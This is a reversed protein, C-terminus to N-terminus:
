RGTLSLLPVPNSHVLAKLLFLWVSSLEIREEPAKEVRSMDVGQIGKANVIAVEGDKLSIYNRTHRSFACVESAVFVRESGLGIVLPSGNRAAIIQDPHSKSLIALGWTGELRSLTKNVAAKLPLNQDLYFGILQAIVETDTESRFKFGKALLEARLEGSNEITGNHVLAIRNKSDSHPHANADTKGGHTAWRTHAIGISHGIHKSPADKRLLDISDSTSGESAFKSTVINLNADLTAIGASDYGRNQLITLGELLFPTAPDSGIYAIIGCNAAHNQQTM